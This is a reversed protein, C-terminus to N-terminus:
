RDFRRERFKRSEAFEWSDLFVEGVIFSPERDGLWAHLRRHELESSQAENLDRLPFKFPLQDAHHSECRQTLPFEKFYRHNM